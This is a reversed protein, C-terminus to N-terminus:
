FNKYDEITAELGIGQFNRKNLEKVADFKEQHKIGPEGISALLEEIDDRTLKKKKKLEDLIEETNM